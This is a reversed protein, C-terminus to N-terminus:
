THSIDYEVMERVLEDFSINKTWGLQEKAKTCDGLLSEVEAPRFYYPNIAILIQGTAADYGKEDAGAGEWRITRGVVGFAKEIFTRVSYQEGTSLIYDDPQEQQLMLWMGYVYDKAHGWDRLADLNGLEIPTQSGKLINAVGITIKRTVFNQGRRPSEHNFLIGSCAFMGYSERYNKVIWHGYLKAVGYPSRPYFPTTEKQPTEQVLGFLESTSAQYIRTYSSMQLNRVAELLKLVGVGDSNATYEPMAFSVHVHSQAALNYIELRGSADGFQAKIKSLASVLSHGDNMDGYFMNLRPLIHDIRTTNIYSHNRKLGYVTYGKDLLLEALYSGDQGTIGTIFAVLM